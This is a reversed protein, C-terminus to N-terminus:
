LKLQDLIANNVATAAGEDTIIPLERPIKFGNVIQRVDIVVRHGEIYASFVEGSDNEEVVSLGKEIADKLANKFASKIKSVSDNRNNLVRMIDDGVSM